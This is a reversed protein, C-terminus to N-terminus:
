SNSVLAIERRLQRKYDDLHRQLRAYEQFVNWRDYYDGTGDLLGDSPMVGTIGGSGDISPKVEKPAGLGVVLFDECVYISACLQLIGGLKKRAESGELLMGDLALNLERMELAIGMLKRNARLLRSPGLREAFVGDPHNEGLEGDGFTQIVEDVLTQFSEILASVCSYLDLLSHDNVLQENALATPPISQLTSSVIMGLLSHHYNGPQAPILRAFRYKSTDLLDKIAIAPDEADKDAAGAAVLIKRFVENRWASALPSVTLQQDFNGPVNQIVGYVWVEDPEPWNRLLVASGSMGPWDAHPTNPLDSHDIGFKLAQGAENASLRGFACTLTRPGGDQKSARPYGRAEVAHADNTKIEAVRLRMKSWWPRNFRDVVQILAIDLRDDYWAVRNNRRFPWGHVESRESALRFTWGELVPGSGDQKQLIHAATLILGNAVLRGTGFGADDHQIQVVDAQLTALDYPM